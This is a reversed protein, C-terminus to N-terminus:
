ACGVVPVFLYPGAPKEVARLTARDGHRALVFESRRFVDRGVIWKTLAATTLDIEVDQVSLGCYPRATLKPLPEDIM